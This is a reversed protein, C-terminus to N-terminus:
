VIFCITAWYFNHKQLHHFFFSMRLVKFALVLIFCSAINKYSKWFFYQFIYYYGYFRAQDPIIELVYLSIYYQGYCRVPMGSTEIYTAFRMRYIGIVYIIKIKTVVLSSQDM